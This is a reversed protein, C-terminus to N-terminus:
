GSNGMKMRKCRWLIIGVAWRRLSCRAKEKAIAQLAPHSLDGPNLSDPYAITASRNHRRAPIRKGLERLLLGANKAHNLVSQDADFGIALMGCGIDGGVASPYILSRTAMVTGVCVDGALHVDPMIALHVLDDATKIRAIAQRASYEMPTALWEFVAPLKAVPDSLQVEKM